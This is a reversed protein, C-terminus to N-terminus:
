LTNSFIKSSTNTLRYAESYSTRGMHISECLARIFCGDLRSAATNYFNGGDARKNKKMQNYHNIASQVSQHYIDPGIKKCDLAKRAIVIKGCRFHRSLETIKEFIDMDYEDWKNLFEKWPVMLESAAANCVAESHNMGTIRHERDNFLDDSGLWIHAAEHFISFLKAGNSDATNIFILPAWDDTMAFARFENVDLTRHTNKGAIGSIMVLIGCTELQKRIHSFAEGANKCTEYWTDDLGLDLRMRDAIFHIDTNGQLCGAASLKDFGCDQRYSKMWDQINAM